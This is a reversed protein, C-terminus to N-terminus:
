ATIDKEAEKLSKYGYKKIMFEYIIEQKNINKSKYDLIDKYYLGITKKSYTALESRLYTEVSTTLKGYEETPINKGESQFKELKDLYESWRVNDSSHIPRGRKSINPFKKSFEEEWKIEIEVIKNILSFTELSLQPIIHDIRAFELPSTSKMMRAYKEVMLNREENEAKKLDDLYSKLTAYSWTMFQSSRIARFMRPNNQGSAKGGINKVDSFM